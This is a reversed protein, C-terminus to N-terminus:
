SSDEVDSGLRNVWKREHWRHRASGTVDERATQSASESRVVQLVKQSVFRKRGAKYWGQRREQGGGGTEGQAAGGM